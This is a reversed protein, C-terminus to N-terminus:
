NLYYKRFFVDYGNLSEQLLVQNYNANSLPWVEEVINMQMFDPRKDYLRNYYAMVDQRSAFPRVYLVPVKSLYPMSLRTVELNKEPYFQLNYKVVEATVERVDAWVDSLVILACHETAPEYVFADQSFIPSALLLFILTKLIRM